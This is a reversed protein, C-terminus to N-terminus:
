HSSRVSEPLTASQFRDADLGVGQGCAFRRPMRSPNICYQRWGGALVQAVDVTRHLFLLPVHGAPRTCPSGRLQSLLFM